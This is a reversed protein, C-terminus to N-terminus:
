LTMLERFSKLWDRGFHEVTIRTLTKQGRKPRFVFTSTSFDLTWSRNTMGPPRRSRRRRMGGGGGREGDRDCLKVRELDKFTQFGKSRFDKDNILAFISCTVLPRTVNDNRVPPCPCVFGIWMGGGACLGFLM